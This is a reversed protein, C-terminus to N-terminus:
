STKLLITALQLKIMASSMPTHYMSIPKQQHSLAAIGGMQPHGGSQSSPPLKIQALNIQPQAMPDLSAHMLM